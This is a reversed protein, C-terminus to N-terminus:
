TSQLLPSYARDVKGLIKKMPRFAMMLPNDRTELVKGLIIDPFVPYQRMVDVYKVFLKFIHYLIIPRAISHYPHLEFLDQLEKIHAAWHKGEPIHKVHYGIYVQLEPSGFVPPNGMKCFFQKSFPSICCDCFPIVPLM